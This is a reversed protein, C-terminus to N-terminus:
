VNIDIIKRIMIVGLIQTAIGFGFLLHGFPDVFLEKIYDPSLVLLIGMMFLPLLGVIWGSLRGQATLTRIEGKIQLRDRITAGITDLIQALNGGVQRQILVTTVVLDLDDSRVRNTLNYLADETTVGLNMEKLLRSFEEAIPNTMERSIVEVAQLFSLGSRLANAMLSLADGLQNNMATMRRSIRQEIYIQFLLYVLLGVIVAATISGRTLIFILLGAIISLGVSLVLFEAGKFKMGAQQMKINLLSAKPASGAHRGLQTLLGHWGAASPRRVPAANIGADQTYATMRKAVTQREGTVSQYFVVLVIFTALFSLIVIGIVM